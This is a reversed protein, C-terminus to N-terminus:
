RVRGRRPWSACAISCRWNTRGVSSSRSGAAPPLRCARARRASAWCISHGVPQSLGKVPVRGLSRGEVFGEGLRATAATLRITGPSALQEMRSALHVTPGIADYDMSLDNGIARVLV